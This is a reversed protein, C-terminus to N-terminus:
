GSRNVIREALPVFRSAASEHKSYTLIAHAIYELREPLTPLPDDPGCALLPTEDIAPDEDHAIFELSVSRRAVGPGASAGSWHLIDFNWALAAGAPVPLARVAGLLRVTEAASLQETKWRDEFLGEPAQSRPLVYICGRDVSADTFAIWISLRRRSGRALGGDVHPAWGRAGAIAPVVHVWLHPLQRANPGLAADLLRGVAVTRVAAWLDDFVWAFVAPWGDAIVADIAANVRSLADPPLFVPVVCYGDLGMLEAARRVADDGLPLGHIAPAKTGISSGPVLGRWYASDGSRQLQQEVVVPTLQQESLLQEAVARRTAADM